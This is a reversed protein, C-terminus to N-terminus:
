PASSASIRRPYPRCKSAGRMALATVFLHQLARLGMANAPWASFMDNSRFTATLSLRRNLIRVWLHNLCPPNSHEYDAADWLNLAARSTNPDAVLANIAQEIQDRGFWSRLRQGYTYKVGERTPADEVVQAIYDGVFRREIPLYNPEPFYFGEPEDTIVATLDIL